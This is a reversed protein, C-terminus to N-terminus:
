PVRQNIYAILNDTTTELQSIRDSLSAIAQKSIDITELMQSKTPQKWRKSFNKEWTKPKTSDPIELTQSVEETTNGDYEM